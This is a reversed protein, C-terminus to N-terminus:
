WLPLTPCSYGLCVCSRYSGPLPLKLVNVEGLKALRDQLKPAVEGQVLLPQGARHIEEFHIEANRM